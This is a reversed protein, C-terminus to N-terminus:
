ADVGISLVLDDARVDAGYVATLRGDRWAYLPVGALKAPDAGRHEVITYTADGLRVCGRMGPLEALGAIVPATLESVSFSGAIAFNNVVSRAFASDAIRIVVPLTPNQVRAGLASELNATDSDTIAVLSQAARLNCFALTDDSTADGRLLEIRRMRALEVVLANPNQEVVVVRERLRVLFDIVRIGVNGAGCVIVHGAARIQRVGQLATEQARSLASAITAIFIGWILVGSLMAAIAVLLSAIGSHRLYPTIDGYGVTFMTAATFYM